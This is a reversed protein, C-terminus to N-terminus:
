ARMCASSMYGSTLAAMSFASSRYQSNSVRAITIAKSVHAVGGLLRSREFLTPFHCPNARCELLSKAIGEISSPREVSKSLPSKLRQKRMSNLTGYKVSFSTARRDISLDRPKATLDLDTADM